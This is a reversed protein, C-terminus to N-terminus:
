PGVILPVPRNAKGVACQTDSSVDKQSFTHVIQCKQGLADMRVAEHAHTRNNCIM